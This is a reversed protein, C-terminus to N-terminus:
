QKDFPRADDLQGPRADAASKDVLLSAKGTLLRKGDQDIRYVDFVVDGHAHTVGLCTRGIVVVEAGKTWGSVGCFSLNNLAAAGEDSEPRVTAAHITLNLDTAGAVASSAGLADYTGSETLTSVAAACSADSFVTTVRDFDGLLSFRLTQREYTFGLFDRQHCATTWDGALEPDNDRAKAGKNSTGSGGCAVVLGATLGLAFLPRLPRCVQHARRLMTM